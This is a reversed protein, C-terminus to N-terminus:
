NLKMKKMRSSIDGDELFRFGEETIVAITMGDGSASDRKMAARLARIALNVAEDANLGEKYSDELVGYAFLSGSGTAAYTDEIAGGAADISYLHYGKSDVGGLLLAVWYPFYKTGNLINSLLTAAAVVPMPIKKKMEYLEAEARLYRVLVQLDGVLGATTMGIRDTIRFVKQTRKHAIVHDLTARREAALVVGDSAVIGVTTTGTKVEEMSLVREFPRILLIFLIYIFIDLVAGYIIM